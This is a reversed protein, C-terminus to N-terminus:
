RESAIEDEDKDKEIRRENKKLQQKYKEVGGKDAGLGVSEFAWLCVGFFSEWMWQM